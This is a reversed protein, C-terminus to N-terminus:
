SRARKSSSATSRSVTAKKAASRATRPAPPTKLADLEARLQEIEQQLAQVTEPEPWGLRQLAGAVRQDFVDEFKRLGFSDLASFGLGPLASEPPTAGAAGLGLLNELRFAKLGARLLDEPTQPPTTDAEATRRTPRSSRAREPAAGGATRKRAPEDRSSPKRTM